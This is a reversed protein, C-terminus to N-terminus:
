ISSESVEVDMGIYEVNIDDGTIEKAEILTEHNEDIGDDNQSEIYNEHKPEFIEDIKIRDDDLEIDSIDSDDAGMAAVENMTSNLHEQIMEDTYENLKSINRHRYLTRFSPFPYHEQSRLYEYARPGVICRIKASKQLTEPSWSITKSSPSESELLRIQDDNLFLRLNTEFNELRLALHRYKRMANDREVELEHVRKKLAVRNKSLRSYTILSEGTHRYSFSDSKITSQVHNTVNNDNHNPLTHYDDNENLNQANNKASYVKEIKIPSKVSSILITKNRSECSQVSSSQDRHITSIKHNSLSTSPKSTSDDFRNERKINCSLFKSCEFKNEENNVQPVIDNKIPAQIIENGRKTSMIMRNKKIQLLQVIQPTTKVDIQSKSTDKIHIENDIPQCQLEKKEINDHLKNEHIISDEEIIKEDSENEQYSEDHIIDEDLVEEYLSVIADSVRPPNRTFITPVATPKLVTRINPGYEVFQDPEFHGECLSISNGHLPLHDPLLHRCKALWASRKAVKKVSPLLFFRYKQKVSNSCNKLSCSRVM